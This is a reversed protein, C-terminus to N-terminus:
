VASVASVIKETEGAGSTRRRASALWDVAVALTLLAQGEMM